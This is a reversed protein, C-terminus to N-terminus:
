RRNEASSRQVSAGIHFVDRMQEVVDAKLALMMISGAVGVNLSEMLKMGGASRAMPISVVRQCIKRMDLSLGHGENGLVLAVGRFSCSDNNNIDDDKKTDKNNGQFMTKQRGEKGEENGREAEEEEGLPADACCVTLGQHAVMAKLQEISGKVYPMHLVAGCSARVAKENLPDVCGPLLFVGSWGMALASRFLTGMNGPDRIKDLVLLHRIPRSKPNQKADGMATQTPQSAHASFLNLPVPHYVEACALLQDASEVGSIKAMVSESVLVIQEARLGADALVAATTFSPSATSPVPPSSASPSSTLSPSSPAVFPLLSPIPTSSPSFHRPSKSLTPISGSTSPSLRSPDSSSSSTSSHIPSPFLDTQGELPPWFLRGLISINPAYSLNKKPALLFLRKVLLHHFPPLPPSIESGYRTNGNECSQPNSLSFHPTLAASSNSELSLRAHLIAAERLVDVSTVIFTNATKQRQASSRLLSMEKVLPNSTSTVEVVRNNM